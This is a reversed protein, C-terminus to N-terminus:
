GHYENCINRKDGNENNERVENKRRGSLEGLWIAIKVKDEESLSDLRRVVDLMEDNKESM